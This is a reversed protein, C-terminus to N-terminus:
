LAQAFDSLVFFVVLKFHATSVSLLWLKSSRSTLPSTFVHRVERMEEIYCDLKEIEDEACRLNHQLTQQQLFYNSSSILISGGVVWCYLVLSYCSYHTKSAPQSQDGFPRKRWYIRDFKIAIPQGLFVHCTSCQIAFTVIVYFYVFISSLETDPPRPHNM